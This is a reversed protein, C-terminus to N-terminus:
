EDLTPTSFLFGLEIGAATEDTSCPLPYSINTLNNAQFPTNIADKSISYKEYVRIILMTM